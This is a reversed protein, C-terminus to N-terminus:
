SNVNEANQTYNIDLVENIATEIKTSKIRDGRLSVLPPRGIVPRNDQHTAM